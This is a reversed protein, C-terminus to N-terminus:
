ELPLTIPSSVYNNSENLETIETNHDITIIKRYPWSNNWWNDNLLIKRKNPEESPKSFNTIHGSYVIPIFVCLILVITVLIVGAKKIFKNNKISNTRKMNYM